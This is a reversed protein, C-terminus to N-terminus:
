FRQNKIRIRGQTSTWYAFYGILMGQYMDFNQISMSFMTKALSIAFLTLFCYYYQPALYHRSKLVKVGFVIFLSLLICVGLLGNNCATELWDQHAFNGAFKITSNAGRGFLIPIIEQENKIENWVAGYIRDRGSSNGEMTSEVRYAFYDSTELLYSVAYIAGLVILVSLMFVYTKRKGTGTKFQSYIFVVVAMAGIAIAGRKMGMLIYLMLVALLIYQLMPKERWFFVLPLLAVFMYGVNNTIEETGLADSAKQGFYVYFVIVCFTMILTYIRIRKETLNGAKTQNYFFFIPLLSNFSNKLYTSDATWPIGDGFMIITGGYVIYMLVLLVTATIIGSSSKIMICKAFSVLGLLIMLLQVLQNIVGQPYLLGQLYYLAWLGVFIDCIKLNKIKFM